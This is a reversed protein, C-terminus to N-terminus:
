MKVLRKLALLNLTKVKGFVFLPLELPTNTQVHFLKAQQGPQIQTNKM